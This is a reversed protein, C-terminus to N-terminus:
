GGLGGRFRTARSLLAWLSLALLGCNSALKPCIRVKGSGCGCDAVVDCLSEFAVETGVLSLGLKLILPTFMALMATTLLAASRLQIGSLLAAACMVEIWPLVVVLSNIVWSPHLPLVDYGKLGNLFPVPDGIKEAGYYLFTFGVIIRALLLPFGTADLKRVLEM